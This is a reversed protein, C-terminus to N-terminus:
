SERLIQKYRSKYAKGKIEKKYVLNSLLAYTSLKYDDVFAYDLLEPYIEKAIALTDYFPYFVSYMNKGKSALPIDYDLLKVFQQYSKKTKQNALGRLIAIKICQHIKM